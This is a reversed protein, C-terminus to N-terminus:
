RAHKAKWAERAAQQEKKPLKSHEACMFGFRPGRSVNKCGAVRCSMDLKKGALPSKRARGKPAGRSVDIRAAVADALKEIFSGIFSDIKRPRAM